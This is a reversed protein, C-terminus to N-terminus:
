RKIIGATGLGRNHAIALKLSQFLGRPLYGWHCPVADLNGSLPRYTPRLDPGPWVFVNMETASIFSAGDDLGLHRKVAAPIEVAEHSAAPASHSVPAVYIVRSPGLDRRALVVVVPRDKRGERLGAEFERKWLYAYCLVLGPRPDEPLTV